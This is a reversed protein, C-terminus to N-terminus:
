SISHKLTKKTNKFIIVILPHILPVLIYSTHYSITKIKSLERSSIFKNSFGDQQIAIVFLILTFNLIARNYRRKM